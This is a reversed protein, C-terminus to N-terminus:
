PLERLIKDGRFGHLTASEFLSMMRRAENRLSLLPEKRCAWDGKIQNVILQSDTFIQVEAPQSWLAYVLAELVARYEGVNVTPRDFYTTVKPDSGDVVICNESLSSDCFIKM